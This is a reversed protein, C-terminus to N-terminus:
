RYVRSLDYREAIKVAERYEGGTIRRNLEPYEFAEHAPYYQAMINLFTNKSIDEALFRVVKETGSLDGPLVLHRVLLGRVAIGKGDVVLDGVQGHMLKVAKKAVTFYGAAGAYKRGADDDGFKIDPMYIDVVGDLIELTEPADYGGTNYVLPVRLGLASAVLLAELIQPVFHSPSVLNINHCGGQQLELMMEALDSTSVVEGEGHQSIECNQCFRCKLNCFAFFITGSGRAGVLPAEEGFHPGYSSVVARRGGRCIGLEGKLRNVRCAQACVTCDELMAVARKVKEGLERTTMKLYAAKSM